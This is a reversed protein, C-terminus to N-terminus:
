LKVYGLTTLFSVQIHVTGIHQHKQPTLDLEDDHKELLRFPFHFHVFRMLCVNNLASSNRGTLSPRPKETQFEKNEFLQVSVFM